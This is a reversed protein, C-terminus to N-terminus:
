PHSNPHFQNQNLPGPLNWLMQPNFLPHNPMPYNMSYQSQNYHPHLQYQNRNIWKQKSRFNPKQVNGNKQVTSKFNRKTQIRNKPQPQTKLKSRTEFDKVSIGRPWISNDAVLNYYEDPVFLKFSVFSLKNQKVKASVLKTCNIKDAIERIFGFSKLHSIIENSDTTPKFPTIYICRLNETKEATDIQTNNVAVFDDLNSSQSPCHVNSKRRKSNDLSPSLKRKTAVTIFDTNSSENSVIEMSMNSTNAVSVNSTSHLDTAALNQNQTMSSQLGNQAQTQISQTNSIGNDPSTSKPSSTQISGNDLKQVNATNTLINVCSNINHLIGSYTGNITHPICDDCYWHFNPIEILLTIVNKKYFKNHKSICSFHFRKACFGYCEIRDDKIQLNEKCEACNSYAM